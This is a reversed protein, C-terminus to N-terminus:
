IEADHRSVYNMDDWYIGWDWINVGIDWMGTYLGSRRSRGSLLLRGRGRFQVRVRVRVMRLSWGSM